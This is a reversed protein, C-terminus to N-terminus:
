PFRHPLQRPPPLPPPLDFVLTTGEVADANTSGAIAGATNQIETDMVTIDTTGVDRRPTREREQAQLSPGAVSQETGRFITHTFSTRQIGRVGESHAPGYSRPSLGTIDEVAAAHFSMLNARHQPPGPDDSEGSNAGHNQTASM